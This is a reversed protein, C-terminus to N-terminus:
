LAQVLVLVAGATSAALGVRRVLAKNLRGNVVSSTVFGLLVAPLLTAAFLLVERDISGVATLATLSVLAGVLFFASMTGRVRAPSFGQWVLAMPPGGIATATGMLGSAAGAAAVAAPRPRPQWGCVSLLVALLVTGAVALALAQPPLASVLLAGAVTGPVMGLLAWGTGRFDVATRDRLVGFVTLGAALLVISGPLLSPDLLSIVPAALMGLGFGITGQLCSALFVVLAALALELGTM